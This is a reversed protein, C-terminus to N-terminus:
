PRVELARRAVLARRERRLAAVAEDSLGPATLQAEVEALRRLTAARRRAIEEATVGHSRQARPGAKTM